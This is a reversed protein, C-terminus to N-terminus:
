RLFSFYFFLSTDIWLFLSFCNGVDDDVAETLDMFTKGVHPVIIETDTIPMHPHDFEMLTVM